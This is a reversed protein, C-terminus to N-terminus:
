IDSDLGAQSIACLVVAGRAILKWLFDRRIVNPDDIKIFHNFYTKADKFVNRFSHNGETRTRFMAPKSEFIDDHWKNASLMRLFLELGVARSSSTTEPQREFQRATEGRMIVNFTM